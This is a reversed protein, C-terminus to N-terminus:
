GCAKGKQATHATRSAVICDIMPSSTIPPSGASKFIDNCLRIWRMRVRLTVSLGFALHVVVAALRPLVTALKYDPDTRPAGLAAGM